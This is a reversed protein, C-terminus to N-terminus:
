LNLFAIKLTSFGQPSKLVYIGKQETWVVGKSTDCVGEPLGLCLKPATQVNQMKKEIGRFTFLTSEIMKDNRPM